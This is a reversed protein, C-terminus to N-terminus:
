RISACFKNGGFTFTEGSAEHLPLIQPTSKATNKLKYSVMKGTLAKILWSASCPTLQTKSNLTLIKILLIFLSVSSSSRALYVQCKIVIDINPLYRCSIYASRSTFLSQGIVSDQQDDRQIENVSSVDAKRKANRQSRPEDDDDDDDPEM